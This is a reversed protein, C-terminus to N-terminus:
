DKITIEGSSELTLSYTEEQDYNGSREYTTIQFSGEITEGNGFCLLGEILQNNFASKRIFKESVSNTFLGTASVTLSSVGAQSLLARWPGSIKHTVDILQNNLLFKTTRMGGVTQYDNEIKAKLLFLSGKQPMM